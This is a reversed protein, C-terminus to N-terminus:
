QEDEQQKLYDEIAQNVEADTPQAVRLEREQGVTFGLEELKEYVERTVLDYGVIKGDSDYVAVRVIDENGNEDQLSTVECMREGKKGAEQTQERRNAPNNLIYDTYSDVQDKGTENLSQYKKILAKSREDMIEDQSASLIYNPTIGLVGCILEITDPDPKNQDNEWNSVSNHKAGVLKALEKQTYGKKQRAIRLKKGFTM